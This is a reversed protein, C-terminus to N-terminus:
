IVLTGALYNHLAILADAPEAPAGHIDLGTNWMLILDRRARTIGVYLLRLREKAFAIRASETARGEVYEVQNVSSELLEILEAELNLRDRVYWREAVFQSSVAGPFARNNIGLIYVRDWEQGKAAHLTAVTVVGPRPEFWSEATQQRMFRRENRSMAALEQLIGESSARQPLAHQYMRLASAIQYVVDMHLDDDYLDRGIAVIQQDIPLHTSELWRCVKARFGRLSEQIPAVHNIFASPLNDDTVPPYLFDELYRLKRLERVVIQFQQQMSHEVLPQSLGIMEYLGALLRSDLPSDLYKLVKLLDGATERFEVASRLLEDHAIGSTRLYDVVRYGLRNEPVLVAVTKERNNPIWRQLSHVLATIEIQPSVDKGHQFHIHVSTELTAPPTQPDGISTTQIFTPEFADRLQTSSPLQSAWRVLANALDIIPHGSRGSETLEVRTVDTSAAYQRLHQPDASSFTANISQNPDGVRVWNKNASLLSLMQEQAASSDQAEDELIHVWRKHLRKRLEDQQQLALVASLVLDDYDVLERRQLEAQYDLYVKQCFALIPAPIPDPLLDEPLRLLRSKCHTIFRECLLPILTTRIHRQAEITKSKNARVLPAIYDDLISPQAILNETACRYLIRRSSTDDIIIMGDDSSQLRSEILIDHALGHLTRIRCGPIAEHHPLALRKSIDAKLRMVASNSYTVVLVEKGASIERASLKSILRATLHALLFTKGSGPVAIVAMKGSTYELATYQAVRFLHFWNGNM